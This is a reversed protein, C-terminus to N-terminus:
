PLLFPREVDLPAGEKQTARSPRGMEADETARKHGLPYTRKCAVSRGTGRLPVDKIQKAGARWPRGARLGERAV